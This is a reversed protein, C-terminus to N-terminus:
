EIGEPNFEPDEETFILCPHTWVSEADPDEETFILCPHTWVYEALGVGGVSPSLVSKM